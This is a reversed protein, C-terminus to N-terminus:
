PSPGSQSSVKARINKRHFEVTKESIQLQFAIQKNHLGQEVLRYVDRERDTLSELLMARRVSFRSIKTARAVAALLDHHSVPKELFEVAGTKMATVAARVSAQGTLFLIPLPCEREVLHKQVELGTRGPMRIDLIICGPTPAVAVGLFDDADRYTRAQYGRSEMLNRLSQRIGDDDDVIHVVASEHSM